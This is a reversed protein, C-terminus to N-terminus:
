HMFSWMSENHTERQTITCPTKTQKNNEHINGKAKLNTNACARRVVRQHYKHCSRVVALYPVTRYLVTRYPLQCYYINWYIFIYKGIIYIYINGSIDEKAFYCAHINASWCNQEWNTFFSEVTAASVPLTGVRERCTHQEAWKMYINGKREVVVCLLASALVNDITWNSAASTYQIGAM